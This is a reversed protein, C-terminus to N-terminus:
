LPRSAGPCGDAHTPAGHPAAALQARAAGPEPLAQQRHPQAPADPLAQCEQQGPVQDAVPHGGEHAALRLLPVHHPGRGQSRGRANRARDCTAEESAASARHVCVLQATQQCGVGRRSVLQSGKLPVHLPHAPALRPLASSGEPRQPWRSSGFPAADGPQDQVLAGRPARACISRAMSSSPQFSSSSTRSDGSTGYLRSFM